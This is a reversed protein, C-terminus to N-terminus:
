VADVWERAMAYMATDQAANLWRPTTLAIIHDEANEEFGSYTEV